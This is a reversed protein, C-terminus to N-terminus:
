VDGAEGALKEILIEALRELFELHMGEPLIDLSKDMLRGFATDSWDYDKIIGERKFVEEIWDINERVWDGDNVFLRILELDTCFLLEGRKTKDASVHVHWGKGMPLLLGENAKGNIRMWEDYDAPHIVMHDKEKIPHPKPMSEKLAEVANMVSELTLEDKSASSATSYTQDYETDIHWLYRQFQEATQNMIDQSIQKEAETLELRAYPLVILRKPMDDPLQILRGVWEDFNPQEDM